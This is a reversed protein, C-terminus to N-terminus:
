ISPLNAMTLESPQVGASVMGIQQILSRVTEGLWNIENQTPLRLDSTLKRANTKDGLKTSLESLKRLVVQSVKFKMATNNDKSCTKKICTYCFYAMGFIPERRNLYLSYRYWLMEVLENAIFDIPPPPYVAMTLSTTCLDAACVVECIAAAHLSGPVPPARDVVNASQFFFRFIEAARSVGAKIEWSRLYADVATRAEPVNGYHQMLTATFIGNELVGDFQPMSVLVMPPNDFAYGDECKIVYRLSSVHPDTM